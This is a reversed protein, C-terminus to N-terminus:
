IDASRRPKGLIAVSLEMQVPSSRESLYVASLLRRYQHLQMQFTLPLIELKLEPGLRFIQLGSELSESVASDSVPWSMAEPCLRIM